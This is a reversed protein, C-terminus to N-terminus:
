IQQDAGHDPRRAKVGLFRWGAKEAREAMSGVLRWSGGQKRLNAAFGSWVGTSWDEVVVDTYGVRELLVTYEELDKPRSVLNRSPVGLVWPLILHGLIPSLDSPPLIDTYAIVGSGPTLSPMVSALFFPVSLPFHYIADLIYILDYPPPGEKAHIVTDEDQDEDEDYSASKSEGMYGKM